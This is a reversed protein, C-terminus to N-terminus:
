GEGFWRADEFAIVRKVMSLHRQAIRTFTTRAINPATSFRVRPPYAESKTGSHRFRSWFRRSKSVEIDPSRNETDSVSPAPGSMPPDLGASSWERPSSPRISSSMARNPDASPRYRDSIPREPRAVSRDKAAAPRNANATPHNPPPLRAMRPM